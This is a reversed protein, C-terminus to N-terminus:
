TRERGVLVSKGWLWFSRAFFDSMRPLLSVVRHEGKLFFLELACLADQLFQRYTLFQSDAPHTLHGITTPRVFPRRVSGGM